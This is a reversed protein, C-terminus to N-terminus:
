EKAKKLYKELLAPVQEPTVEGHVQDDIMVVPALGCTGLCRTGELTFVGDKSTEGWTIGLEDIIRQAVRDAGKVYCATGLCVNIMFKGRPKLRFFHYFSAVGAVKSAPVQMLQAVADLHADGLYGFKGQVEHLVAILQSEPHPEKRCQEIMAVISDGLVLKAAAEVQEWNDTCTTM